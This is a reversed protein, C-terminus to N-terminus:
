DQLGPIVLIAASSRLVINFTWSKWLQTNQRKICMSVLVPIAPPSQLVRINTWILGFEASRPSVSQESFKALRTRPISLPGARLCASRLSSKLYLCITHEILCTKDFKMRQLKSIRCSLNWILLCFLELM